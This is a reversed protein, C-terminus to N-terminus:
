AKNDSNHPDNSTINVLASIWPRVDSVQSYLCRGTHISNYDTGAALAVNYEIETKLMVLTIRMFGLDLRIQPMSTPDEVLPIVPAREPDFRYDVHLKLKGRSESVEFSHAFGWRTFFRRLSAELKHMAERAQPQISAHTTEFKMVSNSITAKRHEKAQWTSGLKDFYPNRITDAFSVLQPKIKHKKFLLGLTPFLNEPIRIL